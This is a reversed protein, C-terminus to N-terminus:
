QHIPLSLSATVITCSPRPVHVKSLLQGDRSPIIIVGSYPHPFPPAPMSAPKGGGGRSCLWHLTLWSPSRVRARVARGDPRGFGSCKSAPNNAIRNKIYM